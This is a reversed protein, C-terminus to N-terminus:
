FTKIQKEKKNRTNKSDATVEILILNSAKNINRSRDLTPLVDLCEVFGCFPKFVQQSLTSGQM